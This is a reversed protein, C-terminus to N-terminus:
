RRSNGAGAATEQGAEKLQRAMLADRESQWCRNCLDHWKDPVGWGRWTRVRIPRSCECYKTM